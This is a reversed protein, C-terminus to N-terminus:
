RGEDLNRLLDRGVLFSEGCEVLPNVRMFLECVDVSLPDVDDGCLLAGDDIVSQAADEDDQCDRQDGEVEARQHVLQDVTEGHVPPLDLREVGYGAHRQLDDSSKIRKTIKPGGPCSPVNRPSAPAPRVTASLSKMTPKMPQNTSIPFFPIRRPSQTSILPTVPSTTSIPGNWVTSSSVPLQVSEPWGVPRRTVKVFLKAM